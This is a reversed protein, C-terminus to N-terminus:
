SKHPNIKKMANVVKQLAQSWIPQLEAQFIGCKSEVAAQFDKTESLVIKTNNQAFLFNTNTYDIMELLYGLWDNTWERFCKICSQPYSEKLQQRKELSFESSLREDDLISLRKEALVRMRKFRGLKADLAVRKMRFKAHMIKFDQEMAKIYVKRKALLSFLEGNEPSKSIDDYKTIRLEFPKQVNGYICLAQGSEYLAMRELQVGDASMTSALLQRDDMATIRHAIKLATNKTVQPALSTPLQDAIIISEQLARVEALMDVIYQTSAVKADGNEANAITTPGILNHAEELFIVHRPRDEPAHPNQRLLERIITLLLLTLFNAADSGLSELEIVCSTTLWEEPKLTSAPVNFVNGMEMLLLSGIRVQLCSKLNSKVEPAYDSRDLMEGMKTYLEQMNPYEHEGDNIEFSYWGKDQYVQLIGDLVLRPMPPTLDFAGNFVQVLATIHESLKMGIPFEFPNIRLPFSGPAGPSFIILDPLRSNRALARYEKKAPELVLIPIHNPEAGLHSAIHLMSFTKGGGPVGALLAHKSLYKLPLFVTYGNKDTGLELGNDEYEPASEKPIEITEGPYLVPLMAFAPIEKLLFISNWDEMGRPTEKNCLPRTDMEQILPTYQGQNTQINYNGEEVAESAAADLIMKAIAPHEAYANIRCLFHPNNRLSEFYKDYLRLCQEANDDRMSNNLKQNSRIFQIQGRFSNRMKEAYDAARLTVSYAAPQGLKQMIRFLGLLRGKDNAKWPNVTYFAMNKEPFSSSVFGDVKALTAQYPFCLQKEKESLDYPLFKYYSSLSSSTMFENMCVPARESNDARFYVSLRKGTPKRPDYVYIVSFVENFLLGKRNLQRYFVSHQRIVDDVGGSEEASYQALTLDPIKALTFYKSGM